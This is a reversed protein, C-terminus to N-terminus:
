FRERLVNETKEFETATIDRELISATKIRLSTNSNTHFILKKIKHNYERRTEHTIYKLQQQINEFSTTEPRQYQEKQLSSTYYITLSQKSSFLTQLNHLAM